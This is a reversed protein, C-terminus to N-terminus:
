YIILYVTFFKLIGTLIIVYLKVVIKIATIKEKAILPIFPFGVMSSSSEEFHTDEPGKSDDFSLPLNARM